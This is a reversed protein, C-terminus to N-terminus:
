VTSAFREMQFVEIVDGVKIDNYGALAIGCEFGTKVESVDDKFRRLSALKGEWVMQGDRILRVQVDGKRTIVGESVMCGAIVGAKPVKFTDRVQAAGIRVEKFTPDLLGAMAKEIEETVNYIVTHHRIDVKEREAIDAANRDPRVNFGIIIAGGATALLVDSENIAGVGSHIIKVKVKDNSLKDLSSALVEASGQVDAKVIIPLEKMGGDAMQAQLSELTLRSGKSVLSKEKAKAQRFMAIQRAKAPDSVTQFSDGPSPLTELGLVEVPTSPGASKIPRGRDDILARVRGVVPGAIINDGVNLTGDQVLVTAVPGRGRDLKTELVTGAAARKPNAKLESIETVLLIMELLSELNTKQKASVEVFVTTGGWAEPMLGIDALQRKVVEPNAGPKDIKNVAVIIPVNALKAHDVAERTQPMVGDDAAVVLIVVDTVKAGRARMLTFAAHGPTDLFVISKDKKEGVGGVLYAGIHQTIGGAEREAVRTTRISDLLTTKGHDVHGMVTVVPARAITDKDDAAESAVELLEEEFSRTEVEAGFHRAVDRATDIDVASNITMMMRRDLLVKLVDKVRVDLKDSLDKVTMGEALTITRSIPPLAVPPPAPMQRSGGDRRPGGTPRGGAPRFPMGPRGGMPPRGPMGPRQPYQGPRPPVGPQGPRVPQSPLPRPGGLASPTTPYPRGGPYPPRAGMPPRMGPVPASGPPRPPPPAVIRAPPQSPPRKAPTLPRAQPVAQGPEEIRLRLSPPLIRGTPAPPASPAAPAAPAAAIPPAPAPVPEPAAVPEPQPEAGPAPAEAMTPPAVPAPPPAVVEPEPPTPPEHHVEAPAEAMAPPAAPPAEVAPAPEHVEAHAAPAHTDHGPTDHGPASPPRVARILRPPPLPPGTPKPPEPAQGKKTSATKAKAAKVATESFIDGKPLEIGRQRALREVFQRAVIEEVTSSASKLEIGHNQKLLQLVEQSTTGLLEAVKFIRVTAM